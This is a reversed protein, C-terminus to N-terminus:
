RASFGSVAKSMIRNLANLFDRNEVPSPPMSFISNLVRVGKGIQEAAKDKEVNFLISRVLKSDLYILIQCRDLIKSPSRLHRTIVDYNKGKVRKISSGLEPITTDGVDLYEDVSVAGTAYNKPKEPEASKVPRESPYQKLGSRTDYIDRFEAQFEISAPNLKKNRYRDRIETVLNRAASEKGFHAEAFIQTKGGAEGSVIVSYKKNHFFAIRGKVRKEEEPDFCQPDLDSFGRGNDTLTVTYGGINISLITSGGGYPHAELLKLLTMQLSYEAYRDRNYSAQRTRIEKIVANIQADLSPGPPNNKRPPQIKPKIYLAREAESAFTAGNFECSDFRTTASVRWDSLDSFSLDCNSMDCTRLDAGIKAGYFNVDAISSGAIAAHDLFNAGAMDISKLYCDNIYARNFNLYLLESNKIDTRILSAGSMNASSLNSFSITSKEFTAGSFSAEVARVQFILCTDYRSSIADLGSLDSLRITTNSLWANQMRAFHLNCSYIRCHEILANDLIAGSLNVNEFSTNKILAAKLNACSLDAGMVRSDILSLEYLSANKLNVQNLYCDTIKSYDLDAGELDSGSLDVGMLNAGRLKARKFNTNILTSNEIIAGSLDAGSLDVGNLSQESIHTDRLDAGRLDTGPSLEVKRHRTGNTM